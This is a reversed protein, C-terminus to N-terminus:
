VASHEPQGEDAKWSSIARSDGERLSPVSDLCWDIPFWDRIKENKQMLWKKHNTKVTYIWTLQEKKLFIHM